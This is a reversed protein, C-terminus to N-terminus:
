ISAQGQFGPLLSPNFEREMKSRVTDPHQLGLVRAVAVFLELGAMREGM